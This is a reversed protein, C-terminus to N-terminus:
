RCISSHRLRFTSECRKAGSCWRGGRATGRSSSEQLVANRVANVLSSTVLLSIHTKVTLYVHIFHWGENMAAPPRSSCRTNYSIAELVSVSVQHAGQVSTNTQTNDLQGVSVPHCDKCQTNTCQTATFHKIVLLSNLKAGPFDSSVPETLHPISFGESKCQEEALPGFWWSSMVCDCCSLSLAAADLVLVSWISSSFLSM